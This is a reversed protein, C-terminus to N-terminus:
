MANLWTEGGKKEQDTLIEWNKMVKGIKFVLPWTSEIRYYIRWDPNTQHKERIVLSLNYTNPFIAVSTIDEEWGMMELTGSMWMINSTINVKMLKNLYQRGPKEVIFNNKKRKWVEHKPLLDSLRAWGWPSPSLSNLKVEQVPSCRCINNPIRRYPVHILFWSRHM